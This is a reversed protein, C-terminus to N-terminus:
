ALVIIHKLKIATVCTVGSAMWGAAIVLACVAFFVGLIREFPLVLPALGPLELDQPYYPHSQLPARTRQWLLWGRDSPVRIM